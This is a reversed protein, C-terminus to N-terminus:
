MLKKPLERLIHSAIREGTQNQSAFFLYYLTAGTSNLMAAPKSVFKFGAVDQLRERFAQAIQENTSKEKLEDFLMERSSFAVDRWTEDGWFATMRAAQDARTKSQDRRLVNRNMDAIPFNLFIETTKMTGAMKIVEWNLHLGYPDLFCVGRYHGAYSLTPLITLLAQNCDESYVSVDTRSGVLRQLQETKQGDTDIFHYHHFPPQINLALLPSGQVIEGSEKSIAVGAGCFADVYVPKLSPFRALIKAYEVMYDRLIAHKCRSWRGIEDLAINENLEDRM